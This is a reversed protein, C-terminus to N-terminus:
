ITRKCVHINLKLLEGRIREAGWLRNKAAMEKILAVTEAAVKPQHSTAQSRRKWVLCFLERHWHLLTDPQVILLAQKWTRVFRALLVLLTRDAKNCAPRKVQRSLIILQQRLLANEAILEPKSKGLDTLTGLPLSISLPKTWRLFRSHLIDLCDRRLQLLDALVRGM